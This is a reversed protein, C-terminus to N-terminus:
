INGRLHYTVNVQLEAGASPQYARPKRQRIEQGGLRIILDGGAELQVSDAGDFDLQIQDPSSGPRVVFDYELNQNHGYYVLDVGPYVDRYRVKAYQPINTRWNKPDNGILYNSIGPSRELGEITAASNAGVLNMRIASQNEITSKRNRTFS